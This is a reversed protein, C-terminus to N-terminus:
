TALDAGVSEFASNVVGEGLRSVAGATRRLAQRNEPDEAEDALAALLVTLGQASAVRNLDPWEGLLVLGGARLRLQSWYAYHTTAGRVGDILGHGELRNLAEDVQRADLEGEFAPQPEPSPRLVLNDTRGHWDPNGDQALLWRLVLDDVEDWVSV